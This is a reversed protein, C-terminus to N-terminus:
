GPKAPGAENIDSPYPVLCDLMFPVWFTTISAVQHPGVV